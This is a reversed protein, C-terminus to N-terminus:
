TLAPCQGRITTDAVPTWCSTVLPTARPISLERSYRSRWIWICGPSRATSQVSPYVYLKGGEWYAMTTRSELPQHSTSQNYSHEEIIIDAEAFGAELDGYAWESATAGDM